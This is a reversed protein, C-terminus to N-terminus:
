LIHSLQLVSPVIDEFLFLHECLKVATQPMPSISGVFDNRFQTERAHLKLLLFLERLVSYLTRRIWTLNLRGIVDKCRNYSQTAGQGTWSLYGLCSILTLAFKARDGLFLSLRFRNHFTDFCHWLRFTSQEVCSIRTPLSGILGSIM